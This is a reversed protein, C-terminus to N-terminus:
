NEKLHEARLTYDESLEDLKMKYIPISLEKAISILDEINSKSCNMGIYIAKPTADIYPMGEANAGTTCRFEKEYQWTSQKINCLYSAIFVISLDDIMIQNKGQAIQRDAESSLMEAYKKMFSTIDLRQDTYQIPFTCGALQANAPNKMDYSVCYGQHNNAYHAWMPMCGTSNQTLAAGRHFATFDDIIKGGIHRLRKIDALQNSDYFFAKGDFPDNFDKIDSMFIKKNRLTSFKMKNLEKNETLSCFKYLTNPLYLRIISYLTKFAASMVVNHPMNSPADNTTKLLLYVMKFYDIPNERLWKEKDFDKEDVPSTPMSYRLDEIKM